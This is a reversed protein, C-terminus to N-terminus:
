RWVTSKGRKKQTIKTSGFPPYVSFPKRKCISTCTFLIKSLLVHITITKSIGRGSNINPAELALLPELPPAAGASPFRPPDSTSLFDFPYSYPIATSLDPVHHCVLPGSSPIPCGTSLGVHNQSEWSKSQRVTGHLFGLFPSKPLFDGVPEM